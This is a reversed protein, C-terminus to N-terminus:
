SSGAQGEAAQAEVTCWTCNHASVTVQFNPHKGLHQDNLKSAFTKDTGKPVVCEEDLMSIVGLPQLCRSKAIFPPVKELLEICQQLDLGFDIFEWKIGERAYEEQELVFM